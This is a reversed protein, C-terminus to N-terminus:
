LKVNSMAEEAVSCINQHCMDLGALATPGLYLPKGVGGRKHNLPSRQPLQAIM